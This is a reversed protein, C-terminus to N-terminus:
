YYLWCGCWDVYGVGCVFIGLFGFCGLDVGFGGCGGSWDGVCESFECRRYVM